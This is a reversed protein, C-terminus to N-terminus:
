LNAFVKKVAAIIDDLEVTTLQPYMPLRLLTRHVRNANPFAGDANRAVSNYYSNLHLPHYHTNCGIGEANLADRIRALHEEPVRITYLSWNPEVDPAIYPVELGDIDKLGASLYAAHQTRLANMRDLKKLQSLALAGLIDSQVYSNGKMQYEYYGRKNQDTIFVYKNTGKERMIRAREALEDDDTVLCGGEGTALNKTSHFSFCTIRAQTGVFKGKFKSGCSQAADHVVVLDHEQAIANIENIRCPHGAYDVPVIARTHKNIHKKIEAPSINATEYEVDCLRVKMGNLIPGLASSTFTFDPVIAEGEELGTIMFALHLAATCSTVLLAHKVGLYRAFAEEFERGKPGDGSVWTSRLREVVAEEDSRDFFPLNLPIKKDRIAKGGDIALTAAAL